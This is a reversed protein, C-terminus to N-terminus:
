SFPSAMLYENNVVTQEIANDIDICKEVSLVFEDGDM